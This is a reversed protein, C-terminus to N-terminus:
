ACWGYRRNCALRQMCRRAVRRRARTWCPTGRSHTSCRWWWGRRNTRCRGGGSRMWESALLAQMNSQVRVFSAPLLTSCAADVGLSDQLWQAAQSANGNVRVGHAPRRNNAEALHAADEVGYQRVLLQMLWSPHSHQLALAEAAEEVSATIPPAPPLQLTGSELARSANRLVGNVLNAAAPRVVKKVVQVHENLAHAPTSMHLLEYLGTCSAVPASVRCVHTGIRMVALVPVDLADPRGGKLLGALVYDLQRHMRTVGAVLETVFRVDRHVIRTSTM